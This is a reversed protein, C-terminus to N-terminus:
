NEQQRREGIKIIFVEGLWNDSWKPKAQGFCIEKLEFLIKPANKSYGNKFLVHTYDYNLEHEMDEHNCFYKFRTLWYPKIERYEEIKEGSDIMDFWKKKLTLHLIKM